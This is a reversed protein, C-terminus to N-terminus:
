DYEVVFPFFNEILEDADNFDNPNGYNAFKESFKEVFAETFLLLAENLPRSPNDSIIMTIIKDTENRKFVLHIDKLSIETIDGRNLVEQLTKDMSFIFGSFLRPDTEKDYRLRNWSHSYLLLGNDSYFVMIEYARFPLVYALKPYRVFSLSWFIAGIGQILLDIGPIVKNVNFTFMMGAVGAMIFVSIVMFFANKKMNSPSVRFIHIFYLFTLALFLAFFLASTIRLTGVIVYTQSGNPFTFLEISVDILTGYLVLPSLTAFLIIRLLSYLKGTVSDIFRNLYLIWMIQFIFYLQKFVINLFIVTLASCLVSLVMFFWVISLYKMARSKSNKYEKYVLLFAILLAFTSLLQVIADLNWYM